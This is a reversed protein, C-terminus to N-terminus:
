KTKFSPMEYIIEDIDAADETKLEPTILDASSVKKFVPESLVIDEEEEEDSDEHDDLLQKLDVTNTEVLTGQHLIEPEPELTASPIEDDYGQERSMQIARDLRKQLYDVRTQAERADNQQYSIQLELTQKQNRLTEIEIDKYVNKKINENYSSIQNKLEENDDILNQISKEFSKKIKRELKNKYENKLETEKNELEAEMKKTLIKRKSDVDAQLEELLQRRELDIKDLLDRKLKQCERRVRAEEETRYNIVLGNIRELEQKRYELLVRKTEAPDDKASSALKLPTSSTSSAPAVSVPPTITTKPIEKEAFSSADTPLKTKVPPVTVTTDVAIEKVNEEGSLQLDPGKWLKRLKAKESLIIILDILKERVDDYNTVQETTCLTDYLLGTKPIEEENVLDKCGKSFNDINEKEMFDIGRPNRNFIIAKGKVKALLSCLRVGDKLSAFFDLYTGHQRDEFPKVKTVNNIWDEIAAIDNDSRM